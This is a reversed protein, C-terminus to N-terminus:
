HARRSLPNPIVGRALEFRAAEALVPDPGGLEDPARIENPSAARVPRPIGPARRGGHTRTAVAGSARRGSAPRPPSAPGPATACRRALGPQVAALVLAAGALTAWLAVPGGASLLQTGLVPAIVAAIGWSLGYVALYRARADEPAFASVISWSNGLLLLDGLSWVVTAAVFGPLTTALATAALGVALVAYGISMVEFGTRDRLPGWRLLPQGLVITVASVTFLIGARAAPIGRASLTLPVSMTIQLYTIAFGTGAALMLLLRRDRWVGGTTVHSAGAPETTDARVVVWVTAACLLCTAADAVLLWRLNIGGLWTALLGAAVGAVAMASALLGFATPRSGADSLDAIIAQSPPEYLEFFLGLVLVAAAAMPLTHSAALWLQAVACGVLGVCITTTRGIRDALAGGALRSPITALGFLALLWGATTVPAGVEVTLIVGLFPLTFAGLRNVARALTLAFVARPLDRVRPGTVEV